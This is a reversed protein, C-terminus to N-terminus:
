RAACRRARRTLCRASVVLFLVNCTLVHVFVISSIEVMASKSQFHSCMFNQWQQRMVRLMLVVHSHFFIGDDTVKIGALVGTTSVSFDIYCIMDASPARYPNSLKRKPLDDTDYLAPWSKTDVIASAEQSM